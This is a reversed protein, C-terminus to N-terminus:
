RKRGPRGKFVKEKMLIIQLQGNSKSVTFHKGYRKAEAYRCKSIV